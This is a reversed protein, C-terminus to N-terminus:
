TLTFAHRSHPRLLSTRWVHPTLKKLFLNSPIELVIYPLYFVVLATNYQTAGNLNLDKSLGYVQANAINIKDLFALLFMLCLSPLLHLDIKLMLKAEAAKDFSSPVDQPVNKESLSDPTIIKADAYEAGRSTKQTDAM